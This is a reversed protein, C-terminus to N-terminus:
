HHQGLEVKASRTSTMVLRKLFLLQIYDGVHNLMKM